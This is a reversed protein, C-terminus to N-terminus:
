NLFIMILTLMILLYYCKIYSVHYVCFLSLFLILLWWFYFILCFLLYAMHKLLYIFECLSIYFSLYVLDLYVLGWDKFCVILFLIKLIGWFSKSYNYKLYCLWLWRKQIVGPYRCHGRMYRNLTLLFVVYMSYAYVYISYVYMYVYM